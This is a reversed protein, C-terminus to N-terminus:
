PAVERRNSIPFSVEITCGPSPDNNWLLVTGGHADVIHKVLSLGLGTGKSRTTFFPDFVKPLDDPKVGAGADTIRFSLADKLNLIQVTIPSGVASHQVANDLLNLIIQQIRAGDVFVELSDPPPDCLEVGSRSEKSTQKWLEIASRCLRPLSEWQMRYAQLPRGLELLENMLESLRDVQSRIVELLTQHDKNPALDRQLGQASAQIANLPNRVEHAVGAVFRGMMEEARKRESIDECTTVIAIPSGDAHTVVDSLLQVPFTTGNKRLNLSERRWSRIEDMVELARERWFEPPSFIRSDKGILEEVSYGHMRAEAPNSYLIRRDLDTITVGLQTTEVAKQLKLLSEVAAKRDTVDTLIGEFRASGNPQDVVPRAQDRFWLLRGDKTYLRYDSHLPMADRVSQLEDALVRRRDDPHMQRFWLEPDKMWEEPTFGLLLEIQPSVYHWVGYEGAEAIYSIAPLQEVLTRYKAETRSLELTRERVRQELEEAIARYQERSERLAEETRKRETIDTLIAMSGVPAGSSDLVPAGNIELWILDGTKKRVRVEYRDSVGEKRLLNKQKIVDRDPEHIFLRYGTQGLLEERSYGSIECFRNNTFQIVDDHDVQLLGDNVSEVLTRYREFLDRYREESKRLEEMAHVLQATREQVRFELEEHTTRDEEKREGGYPTSPNM